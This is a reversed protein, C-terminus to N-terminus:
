NSWCSLLQWCLWCFDFLWSETANQICNFVHFVKGQSGPSGSSTLTSLVPWSLGVNWSLLLCSCTNLYVLPLIPQNPEAKSNSWDPTFCLEPRKEGWYCGRCCCIVLSLAEEGEREGRLEATVSQTSPLCFYQSHSLFHFLSPPHCFFFQHPSSFLLPSGEYGKLCHLTYHKGWRWLTFFM